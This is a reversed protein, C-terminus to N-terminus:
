VDKIQEISIQMINKNYVYVSCLDSIYLCFTAYDPYRYFQIM